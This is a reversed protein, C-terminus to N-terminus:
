GFRKRFGGKDFISLKAHSPARRCGLPAQGRNCRPPHAAIPNGEPKIEEYHLMEVGVFFPPIPLRNIFKGQNRGAGPPAGRRRGGFEERRCPTRESRERMGGKAATTPSRQPKGEERSCKFYLKKKILLADCVGTVVLLPAFKADVLM